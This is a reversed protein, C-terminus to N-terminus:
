LKYGILRLFEHRHAVDDPGEVGKSAEGDVVGLIGRGQETEAVIVQTPNATACFIRCVEPLVKITNLVNIPYFGEGLFLIFSHGASLALANKEALAILEDDTGTTRVLCPGSAECFALGFKIGPVANVMAEHADEVTKIFHSQGLIFNMAEPKEIVVLQLEMSM